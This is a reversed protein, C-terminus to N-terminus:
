DEKIDRPDIYTYGNEDITTLLIDLNLVSWPNEHLLIISGPHIDKMVNNVFIKPDATAKDWDIAAGSWDMFIMGSDKVMKRIETNSEGYPARFFHPNSGTEKKILDSTTNIEKEIITTNNEKKLNLHNWTHNGVSFGENNIKQIIGKNNKDKNGNIFFIANANHKKLIAMVEETRITPGDDITLLVSKVKVKPDKPVVVSRKIVIYEISDKIEKQETLTNKIVDEKNTQPSLNLVEKVEPAETKVTFIFYSIIFLFIFSIVIIFIKKTNNIKTM